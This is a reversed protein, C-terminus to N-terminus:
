IVFPAELRGAGFVDYFSGRKRDTEFSTRVTLQEIATNVYGLKLKDETTKDRERYTHTFNERELAAELSGMGLDYDASVVFNDVKYDRPASSVSRPNGGFNLTVGAATCLPSVAFGPAPNCNEGVVYNVGTTQEIGSGWQGTLPNYAYYTGSKNKTAYHRYNAKMALDELPNLNLGLNLMETDIRLGSTARSLPSGNVGNWNDKNFAIAGNAANTAAIGAAALMSASATPDLPMRIADNQRSSGFSVAASVRGNYFDPLKRSVEGKVNYAENDPALSYATFDQLALTTPAADVATLARPAFLTDVANKFFSASASLNASTLGDNYQMGAMWDTTQYN